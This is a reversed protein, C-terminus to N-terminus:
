QKVGIYGISKLPSAFLVITLAFRATSTIISKISTDIDDHDDIEFLCLDHQLCQNRFADIRLSVDPLAGVDILETLPMKDFQVRGNDIGILTSKRRHKALLECISKKSEMFTDSRLAASSFLVNSHIYFLLVNSGISVVM